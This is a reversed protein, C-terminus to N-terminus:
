SYTLTVTATANADGATRSSANPARIYSTLFSYSSRGSAIRFNYGESGDFKVPTGTSGHQSDNTTIQVGIGKAANATSTLALVTNSGATVGSFKLTATSLTSLECNQLRVDFNRSYRSAPVSSTVFEAIPVDGMQVTDIAIACAQISVRGNVTMTYSQAQATAAALCLALALWPSKLNINM